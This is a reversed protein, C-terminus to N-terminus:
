YIALLDRRKGLRYQQQETQHLQLMWQRTMLPHNKIM